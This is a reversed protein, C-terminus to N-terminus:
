RGDTGEMQRWWRAMLWVGLAAGAFAALFEAM